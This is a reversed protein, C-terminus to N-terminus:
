GDRFGGPGFISRIVDRETILDTRLRESRTWLKGKETASKARELGQGHLPIEREAEDRMWREPLLKLIESRDTVLGSSVRFVSNRLATIWSLNLYGLHMAQWVAWGSRLIAQDYAMVNTERAVLLWSGDFPDCIEHAFVSAFFPEIVGGESWLKAAMRLFADSLEYPSPTNELEEAPHAKAQDVSRLLAKFQLAEQRFPLVKKVFEPYFFASSNRYRDLEEPTFFDLPAKISVFKDNGSLLLYVPAPVPAFPRLTEIPCVRM